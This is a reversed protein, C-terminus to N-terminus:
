LRFSPMPTLDYPQTNVKAKTKSAECKTEPWFKQELRRVKLESNILVHNASKWFSPGCYCLCGKCAFLFCHWRFFQHGQQDIDSGFNQNSRKQFMQQSLYGRYDVSEAGRESKECVIFNRLEWPELRLDDDFYICSLKYDFDTEVLRVRM